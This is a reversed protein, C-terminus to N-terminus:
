REAIPADGGAKSTPSLRPKNHKYIKLASVQIDLTVAYGAPLIVVFRACRTTQDVISLQRYLSVVSDIPVIYPIRRAGKSFWINMDGGFIKQQIPTFISRFLKAV